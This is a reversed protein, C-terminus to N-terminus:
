AGKASSNIHMMLTYLNAEVNERNDCEIKSFSSILMEGIESIKSQDYHVKARDKLILEGDVLDIAKNKAADKEILLKCFDQVIAIDLIELM